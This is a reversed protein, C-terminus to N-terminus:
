SFSFNLLEATLIEDGANTIRPEQGPQFGDKDDLNDEAM